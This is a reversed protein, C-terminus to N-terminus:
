DGVPQTKYQKEEILKGLAKKGILTSSWEPRKPLGVDYIIKCNIEKCIDLEAQPMNSPTRDGGKLFINPHYLKLTKVVSGDKDISLVVQCDPFEDRLIQMRRTVTQFCFSKKLVMIIDPHTCIILHDCLKISEKIMSYHGPHLPDFGGAVFGIVKDAM